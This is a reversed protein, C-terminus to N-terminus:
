LFAYASSGNTRSRGAPCSWAPHKSSV